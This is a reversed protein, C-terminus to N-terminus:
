VGTFEHHQLCKPLEVQFFSQKGRVPFPEFDNCIIETKWAYGGPRYDGFDVESEHGKVITTPFCDVVRVIAVAKGHHLVPPFGLISYIEKTSEATFWENKSLDVATNLAACILLPGRYKTPWCRTEFSKAGARLLSAYPEWLSLAKM